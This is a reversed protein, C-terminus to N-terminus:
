NSSNGAISSCNLGGQQHCIRVWTQAKEREQVDLILSSREEDAYESGQNAAMSYWGYALWYEKVDLRYIDGIKVQAPMYGQNASFIMWNVHQNFDQNDQSILFQDYYILSLNYAGQANGQKASKEFWELAREVSKKMGLGNIYMYGLNSQALAYGQNASLTYYDFAKQYNVPTGIGSEYYVGLLNQTEAGGKKALEFLMDFAKAPNPELSQDPLGQEYLQVLFLGAKEDGLSLAKELLEIGKEVQPKQGLGYISIEALQIMAETSNQDAASELWKKGQEYERNKMLLDGLSLQADLWGQNAIILLWQKAKKTHGQKQAMESLEKIARWNGSIASKQLLREAKRREQINKAISAQYSGLMWNGWTNELKASQRILNIGQNINRELGNQGHFYSWGLFALAYGNNADASKQIWEIGSQTEKDVGIGYVLILGWLLRDDSNIEKDKKQIFAAYGQKVMLSLYDSSNSILGRELWLLSLQKLTSLQQTQSEIKAQRIQQKQLSQNVLTTIETAMLANGMLLVTIMWSLRTM